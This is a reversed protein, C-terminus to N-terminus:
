QAAEVRREFFNLADEKGSIRAAWLSVAVLEATAREPFQIPEPLGPGNVLWYGLNEMHVCAYPNSPTHEM